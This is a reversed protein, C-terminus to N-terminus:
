EFKQNLLRELRAASCLRLSVLFSCCLIFALCVVFVVRANIALNAPQNKALFLHTIVAIINVNLHNSANKPPRSHTNTHTHTHTHTNSVVSETNEIYLFLYLESIQTKLEIECCKPNHQISEPPKLRLHRPKLQLKALTVVTM